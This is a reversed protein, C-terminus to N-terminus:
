MRNISRWYTCSGFCCLGSSLHHHPFPLGDTREAWVATSLTSRARSGLTGLWCDLSNLASHFESDMPWQGISM